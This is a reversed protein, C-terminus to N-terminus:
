SRSRLKAPSSLRAAVPPAPSGGPAAPVLAPLYTATASNYQYGQKEALGPVRQGTTADVSGEIASLERAYFGTRNRADQPDSLLRVEHGDAFAKELFPLNHNDWFLQKGQEEGYTDLLNQYEDSPIDLINLGGLNEEGRTFTGEPMKLIESTGTGPLVPDSFKGLVTTTRTATTRINGGFGAYLIEQALGSGVPNPVAVPQGSGLKAATALGVASAGSLAATALARSATTAPASPAAVASASTAAPSTAGGATLVLQESAILLACSYAGETDNGAKFVETYGICKGAAFSVTERPTRSNTNFFTVHGALTKHPTAAWDLLQSTAPVDLTLQLQSHRVKSHAQGRGSTAQTFSFDCQSVPYSTGAVTLEAYFSAM